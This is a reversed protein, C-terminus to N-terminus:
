LILELLDPRNVDETTLEQALRNKHKAKFHRMYEAIWSWNLPTSTKKNCYCWLDKYIVKSDKVARGLIEGDLWREGEPLGRKGVYIDKYCDLIKIWEPHSLNVFVTGSEFSYHGWSALPYDELITEFFDQPVQKLFIMDADLWLSKGHKLNEWFAIQACAKKAFKQHRLEAASNKEFWTQWLVNVDNYDEIFIRNDFLEITFDELYLHLRYNEPFVQSWTHIMIKGIGEYYEKNMTTVCHITDYM